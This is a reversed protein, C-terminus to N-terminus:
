QRLPRHRTPKPAPVTEGILSVVLFVVTEPSGEIMRVRDRQRRVYDVTARTRGMVRIAPHPPKMPTARM